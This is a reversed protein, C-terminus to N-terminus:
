GPSFVGFSRIKGNYNMWRMKLLAEEVELGNIELWDGWTSKRYGHFNLFPEFQGLYEDQDEPTLLEVDDPLDESQPIDLLTLQLSGANLM